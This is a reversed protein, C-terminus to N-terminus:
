AEGCYNHSVKINVMCIKAVVAIVVKPGKVISEGILIAEMEHAGIKLSEKTM